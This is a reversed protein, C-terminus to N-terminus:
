THLIIQNNFFNALLRNVYIVRFANQAKKSGDTAIAITRKDEM